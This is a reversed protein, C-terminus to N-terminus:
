VIENILMERELCGVPRDQYPRLEPDLETTSTFYMEKVANEEWETEDALNGKQLNNKM